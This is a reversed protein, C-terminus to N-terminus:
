TIINFMKERAVKGDMHRRQHSETWTKQENELQIM